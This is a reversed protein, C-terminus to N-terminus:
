QRRDWMDVTCILLLTYLLPTIYSCMYKLSPQNAAQIHHAARNRETAGEPHAEERRKLRGAGGGRGREGATEDRVDPPRDRHPAVRLQPHLGTSPLGTLDFCYYHM